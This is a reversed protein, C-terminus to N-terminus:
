FKAGKLRDASWRDKDGNLHEKANNRETEIGGRKMNSVWTDKDDDWYGDDWENNPDINYNYDRIGGLYERQMPNFPGFTGEEPDSGNIEMRKDHSYRCADLYGPFDGNKRKRAALRGLMYQGKTTDGIENLARKVSESIIRKLDGETLRIRRKM